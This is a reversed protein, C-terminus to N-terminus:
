RISWFWTKFESDGFIKFTNVGTRVYSLLCYPDDDKTIGSFLGENDIVGVVLFYTDDKM